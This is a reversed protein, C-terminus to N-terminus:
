RRMQKRKPTRFRGNPWVTEPLLNPPTSQKAIVEAMVRTKHAEREEPTFGQCRYCGAMAGDIDAEYNRVPRPTYDTM